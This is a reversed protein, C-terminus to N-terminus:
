YKFIKVNLVIISVRVCVFGIQIRINGVMEVGGWGYVHVIMRKMGFNFCVWGCGIECGCECGSVWGRARVVM